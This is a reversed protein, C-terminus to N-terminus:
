DNRLDELLSRASDRIEGDRDNSALTVLLERVRPDGKGRETLLELAQVRVTTDQVRGANLFALIPELPAAEVRAFVNLARALVDPVREVELVNSATRLALQEDGGAALEVLGAAREDPDPDGLAQARLRFAQQRAADDPAAAEMGPPRRAAGPGAGRRSGIAATRANAPATTDENKGEIYTRVEALSGGSYVFVFNKARLLRRLGEEPAMREFAITTSEDTGDSELHMRIGSARGFEALIERLPAHRAALTVRGGRMTAAVRAEPSEQAAAGRPGALLLM